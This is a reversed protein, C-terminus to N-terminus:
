IVRGSIQGTPTDMVLRKGHPLIGALLFLTQDRIGFRSPPNREPFPLMWFSPKIKSVRMGARATM